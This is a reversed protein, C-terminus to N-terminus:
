TLPLLSASMALRSLPVEKLLTVKAWWEDLGDLALNVVPQVEPQLVLVQRGGAM